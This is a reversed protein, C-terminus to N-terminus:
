PSAIPSKVRASFPLSCQGSDIGVDGAPTTMGEEDVVVGLDDEDGPVVESSNSAVNAIRHSYSAISAFPTQCRCRAPALDNSSTASAPICALSPRGFTLLSGLNAPARLAIKQFKALCSKAAAHIHIMERGKGKKVKGGM